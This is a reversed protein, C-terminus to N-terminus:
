RLVQSNFNLVEVFSQSSSLALVACFRCCGLGSHPKKCVKEAVEVRALAHLAAAPYIGNSVPPGKFQLLFVPCLTFSQRHASIM